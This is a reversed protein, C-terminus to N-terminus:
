LNSFLKIIEKIIKVIFEIIDEINYLKTTNSTDKPPKTEWLTIEYKECLPKIKNYHKYDESKEIILVIGAKKGTM